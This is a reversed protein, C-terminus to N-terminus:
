EYIELKQKDKVLINYRCKAFKDRFNNNDTIIFMDKFIPSFNM